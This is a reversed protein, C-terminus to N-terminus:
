RDPIVPRTNDQTGLVAERGQVHSGLLVVDLDHLVQQLIAGVLAGGGLHAGWLAKGDTSHPLSAAPVVATAALSSGARPEALLHGSKPGMVSHEEDRWRGSKGGGRRGPAM